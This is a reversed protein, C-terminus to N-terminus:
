KKYIQSSLRSFMFTLIISVRTKRKYVTTCLFVQDNDNSEDPEDEAGPNGDKTKKKEKLVKNAEKEIEPPM